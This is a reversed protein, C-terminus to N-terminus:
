VSTVQGAEYGCLYWIGKGNGQVSKCKEPDIQATAPHSVLVYREGNSYIPFQFTGIGNPTQVKDGLKIVM